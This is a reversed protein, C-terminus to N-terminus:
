HDYLIGDVQKNLDELTSDNFIICDAMPKLRRIGAESIHKRSMLSRNIHKLIFGPLLSMLRDKLPLSREIYILMGGMDKIAQAENPLRVDTIVINTKSPERAIRRRLANVWTEEYFGRFGETGLKQMAERPSKGGLAVHPQERWNRSVDSDGEMLDRPLCYVMSIVDKLPDALAMPKFGHLGVLIKGLTNKGSGKEGMIGILKYM